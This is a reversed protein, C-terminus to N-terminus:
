ESDTLSGSIAGLALLFGIPGLWIWWGPSNGRVALVIDFILSVFFGFMLIYGVAKLISAMAKAFEGPPMGEISSWGVAGGFWVTLCSIWIWWTPSSGRIALVIDLIFAILGLAVMIRFLLVVRKQLTQITALRPEITQSQMSQSQAEILPNEEMDTPRSPISASESGVTQPYAPEPPITKEIKGVVGEPRSPNAQISSSGPGGLQRQPPQHFTHRLVGARRASYAQPNVSELFLAAQSLPRDTKSELTSGKSQGFLNDPMQPWVHVLAEVSTARGRKGDGVLEQVVAVVYNSEDIVPSGSYGGELSYDAETIKLDLGTVKIGQAIWKPSQKQFTGQLERARLEKDFGYTWFSKGEEDPVRRSPLPQKDRLEVVSLVAL